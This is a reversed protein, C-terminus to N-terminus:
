SRIDFYDTEFTEREKEEVETEDSLLEIQSQVDDYKKNIQPLEDQRFELLSIQQEKKEFEIVFKRMRTLSRKIVGRRKRLATLDKQVDDLSM